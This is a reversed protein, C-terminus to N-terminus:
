TREGEESGVRGVGGTSWPRRTGPLPGGGSLFSGLGRQWLGPPTSCLSVTSVSEPSESFTARPISETRSTLLSLGRLSRVPSEPRDELCGRGETQRLSNSTDHRPSVVGDDAMGVRHEDHTLDGVRHEDHTEVDRPKNESWHSSTTSLFTRAVEEVPVPRGARSPRRVTDPPSWTPGDPPTNWVSSGHVTHLHTSSPTTRDDLFFPPPSPHPHRPGPHGSTTPVPRRDEM